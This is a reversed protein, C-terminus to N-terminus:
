WKPKKEIINVLANRSYLTNDVHAMGDDDVVNGDSSGDVRSWFSKPRRRIHRIIWLIRLFFFFFSLVFETCLYVTIITKKIKKNVGDGPEYRRGAYASRCVRADRM